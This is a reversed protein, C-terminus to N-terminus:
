RGSLARASPRRARSVTRGNYLLGRRKPLLNGIIVREQIRLSNARGGRRCAARLTLGRRETLGATSSSSSRTVGEVLLQVPPPALTLQLSGPLQDSYRAGCFPSSRTKSEVAGTALRVFVLSRVLRWSLEI